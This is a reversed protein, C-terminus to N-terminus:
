GDDWPVLTHLDQRHGCGNAMHKCLRVSQVVYVMQGFGQLLHVKVLEANRDQLQAHENCLNHHLALAKRVEVM